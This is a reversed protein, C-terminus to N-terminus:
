LSAQKMQDDFQVTFAIGTTTVGCLRLTKASFSVWSPHSDSDKLKILPRANGKGEQEGQASDTWAIFFVHLNGAASTVALQTGHPEFSMSLLRSGCGGAAPVRGAEDPRSSRMYTCLAFVPFQFM